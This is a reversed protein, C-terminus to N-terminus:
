NTASLSEIYTNVIHAQDESLSNFRVGCRRLYPKRSNEKEFPHLGSENGLEADCIVQVSIDSAGVNGAFLTMTAIKHLAKRALSKGTYCFSLGSKSVDLLCYSIINGPMLM